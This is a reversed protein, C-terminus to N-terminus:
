DEIWARTASEGGQTISERDNDPVPRDGDVM